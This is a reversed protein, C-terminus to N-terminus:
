FGPFGTNETTSENKVYEFWDYDANASCAKGNGTAYLGVYVGTFGGVTESSLYRSMVRIIEKPADNGQAYLFIFNAREGKIILKVPGPKLVVEDSEHVLSGFRLKSVLVRKGGSQKILLDFHAGNNLLIMGAEENAKGPNFEVQTTATFYM